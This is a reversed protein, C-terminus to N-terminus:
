SNNSTLTKSLTQLESPKKLDNQMITSVNDLKAASTKGLRKQIYDILLNLKGVIEPTEKLNINSGLGNISKGHTDIISFCLDRSPPSSFFGTNKTFVDTGYGQVISRIEPVEITYKPKPPLNVKTKKCQIKMLDNSVLLKMEKIKGKPNLIKIIKGDTFEQKIRFKLFKERNINTYNPYLISKETRKGKTYNIDNITIKGEFKIINKNKLRNMTNNIAEIYKAEKLIKRQDEGHYSIAKIINLLGIILKENDFKELSKLTIELGKFEKFPDLCAKHKLLRSLLKTIGVLDESFNQSTELENLLNEMLEYSIKKSTNEDYALLELLKLLTKRMILKNEPISNYEVNTFSDRIIEMIDTNVILFSIVPSEAFISLIEYALVQIELNNVYLRLINFISQKSSEFVDIRLNEHIKLASKLINLTLKVLDENWDQCNLGDLVLLYYKQTYLKSDFGKLIFGAIYNINMLVDGNSYYEKQLQKLIDYLQEIEYHKWFKSTDKYFYNGLCHLSLKIIEIDTKQSNITDMITAMFKNKTIFAVSGEEVTLSNLTELFNNLIRNEINKQNLYKQENKEQQVMEIGPSEVIISSITELQDPKVKKSYKEIFYIVNNFIEDKCMKKCNDPNDHVLSKYLISHLEILNDNMDSKTMIQNIIKELLQTDIVEDSYKKNDNSIKGLVYISNYLFEPDEIYELWCNNIRNVIDMESIKDKSPNKDNYINGTLRLTKTFLSESSNEINFCKVCIDTIESYIKDNKKNDENEDSKDNNENTYNILMEIISTLFDINGTKKALDILKEIGIKKFIVDFGKKTKCVNSFNINDYLFCTMVQDNDNLQESNDYLMLVEEILKDLIPSEILLAVANESWTCNKLVDLTALYILFEKENKENCVREMFNLLGLELISKHNDPCISMMKLVKLAEILLIERQKKIEPDVTTKNNNYLLRILSLLSDLHTSMDKNKKISLPSNIQSNYKDYFLHKSIISLRRKKITSTNELVKEPKAKTIKRLISIDKKKEPNNNDEKEDSNFTPNLKDVEEIHKDFAAEINKKLNSLIAADIKFNAEEKITATRDICVKNIAKLRNQLDPNDLDKYNNCIKNLEDDTIIGNKTVLKFNNNDSVINSITDIENIPIDINEKDKILNKELVCKKACIKIADKDNSILTDINYSNKSINNFINALNRRRELPLDDDNSYEEKCTNFIENDNMIYKVATPFNSFNSLTELNKDLVKKKKEPNTFDDHIIKIGEEFVNSNNNINKSITNLINQINDDKDDFKNKTNNITTFLKGILDNNNADNNYLNKDLSLLTNVNNYLKNIKKNYNDKDINESKNFDNILDLFLNLNEECEKENKIGIKNYYNNVNDLVYDVLEDQSKLILDYNYNCEKLAKHQNKLVDLNKNNFKEIYNKYESSDYGIKKFLNNMEKNFALTFTKHDTNNYFPEALSNYDNIINSYNKSNKNNNVLYNEIKLSSILAGENITFNNNDNDKKYNDIFNNNYNDIESSIPLSKEGFNKNDLFESLYTIKLKNNKDKDFSNKINDVTKNEDINNNIKNNNLNEIKNNLQPDNLTKYSLNTKLYKDCEDKPINIKNDNYIDLVQDYVNSNPHRCYSIFNLSNLIKDDSFDKYDNNIFNKLIKVYYLFYDEENDNNINHNLNDSLNYVDKTNYLNGEYDNKKDKNLDVENKIISNMIDIGKAKVFLDMGDKDKCLSYLMKLSNLKMNKSNIDNSSVNSKLEELVNALGGKTKIYNAYKENYLCLYCLINNLEKSVKQDDLYNDNITFINDIFDTNIKPEINKKYKEENKLNNTLIESSILLIDRYNSKEQFIKLIKDINEPSDNVTNIKKYIELENTLLKENVNNTEKDNLTNDFTKNFNNIFDKNNSLLQYQNPSTSFANIIELNNLLKNKVDKNNFDNKCNENFENIAENLIENAYQEQGPLKLIENAIVDCDDSINNNGAYKNRLEFFKLLVNQKAVMNLNDNNSLAIIKLLKLAKEATQVNPTTEMIQLLLRPVGAKVMNNCLDKKSEAFLTLHQIITPLISDDEVLKRLLTSDVTIIKESLKENTELTFYKEKDLINNVNKNFHSLVYPINNTDSTKSNFFLLCDFAKSSTNFKENKMSIENIKQTLGIQYKLRHSSLKLIEPYDKHKQNIKDRKYFEIFSLEKAILNRIANLIDDASENYFENINIVSYVTKISDVLKKDTDKNINNSPNYRDTNEKFNKLIKKFELNDILKKLLESGLENIDSEVKENLGENNVQIPYTMVNVICDAFNISHTPVRMPDNNKIYDNIYENTLFMNLLKMSIYSPYRYENKNNMFDCVKPIFTNLKKKRFDDNRTLTSYIVELTNSITENDNSTLFLNECYPFNKEISTILENQNTKYSLNDATKLLRSAIRNTNVDNGFIENGKVTINNLIFIITNVFDDNFKKKSNQYQYYQEIIENYSCFFSNFTQYLNNNNVEWNKKVSNLINKILEPKNDYVELIDDFLRYFIIMFYKNMLIYLNIFDKDKGKLDIKSIENFLNEILEFNEKEKLIKEMEDVLMFNSILVLSKNVENLKIGDVGKEKLNEYYQKLLKIQEKMDNENAIKSYIKACMKLINDNSEFKDLVNSLCEIGGNKVIADKGKENRCLNDLVALGCLVSKDDKKEACKNINKILNEILNKDIIFDRGVKQNSIKKYTDFNMNIMDLNDNFNEESIKITEELGNDLLTPVLQPIQVLGNLIKILPISSQSGDKKKVLIEIVAKHGNKDAFLKALDTDIIDYISILKWLIDTTLSLIDENTINNLSIKHLIGIGELRIIISSNLRIERNPPSVFGELSNLTFIILKVFKPNDKASTLVTNITEEKQQLQKARIQQITMLPKVNKDSKNSKSM